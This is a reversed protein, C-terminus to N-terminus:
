VCQAALYDKLFKVFIQAITSLPHAKRTFYGFTYMNKKNPEEIPIYALTDNQHLNKLPLLVNKSIGMGNVLMERYVSQNDLLIIQPKVGSTGTTIRLRESDLDQLQYSKAQYVLYPYKMFIDDSLSKKAAISLKRSAVCYLRGNVLPHFTFKDRDYDGTTRSTNWIDYCFLLEINQQEALLQLGDTINEVIPNVFINPYEKHFGCIMQPFFQDVANQGTLIDIIGHFDYNKIKEKHSLACLEQLFRDGIEVLRKGDDTLQVGKNTRLLLQTDLEEELNKISLSLAATTMCLKEAAASMSKNVSIELLYKIQETRM